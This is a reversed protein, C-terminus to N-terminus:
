GMTPDRMAQQKCLANCLVLLKRMCATRAVLKPKGAAVLRQYFARLSPNARSAALVAMYLTARVSARGRWVARRGRSAGSDRNFPAVGVLAAIQHRNLTGLTQLSPSCPAAPSLGSPWPHERALRRPRAAAARGPHHGRAGVDVAALDATLWALHADLGDRLAPATM